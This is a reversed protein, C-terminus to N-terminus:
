AHVGPSLGFGAILINIITILFVAITATNNFLNLRRQRTLDNFDSTGISVFLIGVLIKFISAHFFLQDTNKILHYLIKEYLM